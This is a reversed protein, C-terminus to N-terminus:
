LTQKRRAMRAFWVVTGIFLLTNLIAVILSGGWFNGLRGLDHQSLIIHVILLNWTFTITLGAFLWRAEHFTPLAPLLLAFFPFLYREHMETPLIFFTFALFAATLWLGDTTQVRRRFWLAFVVGATFLVVGWRMLSLGLFPTLDSRDIWYGGSFFWWFNFANASPYPYQGAVGTIVKLVDMLRGHLLFPAVALLSTGLSVAIYQYWHQWRVNRFIEWAVLPLFTVVQMKFFFGATWAVVAWAYKKRELAYVCLVMALATFADVQGWAATTFVVAPHLAYLTAGVLAWMDGARRRLIRALLLITLLEALIAPTKFIISALPTGVTPSPEFQHHLWSLGELTLLYPPLYNPLGIHRYEPHEIEHRYAETLGYQKASYGWLQFLLMDGRSEVSTQPAIVFRFAAAVLVISVLMGQYKKPSLDSSM